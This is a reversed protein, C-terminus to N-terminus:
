ASAVDGFVANTAGQGDATAVYEGGASHEVNGGALKVVVDPSRFLKLPECRGNGCDFLVYLIVPHRGVLKPFLKLIDSASITKFRSIDDVFECSHREIGSGHGFDLKFCCHLQPASM